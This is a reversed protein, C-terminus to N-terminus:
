QEGGPKVEPTEPKSAALALQATNRMGIMLDRSETDLKRDKLEADATAMIVEAMRSLDVKKSFLMRNAIGMGRSLGRMSVPSGKGKGSGGGFIQKQIIQGLPTELFSNIQELSALINQPAKGDKGGGPAAGGSQLQQAIASAMNNTEQRVMEPLIEAAKDALNSQVREQLQEMGSRVQNVVLPVLAEVIRKESDSLEPSASDSNPSSQPELPPQYKCHVAHAAAAPKTKFKDGCGKPCPWKKERDSKKAM